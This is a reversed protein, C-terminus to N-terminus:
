DFEPTSHVSYGAAQYFPRDHERYNRYDALLTCGSNFNRIFIYRSPCAFM